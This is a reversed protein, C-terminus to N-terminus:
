RTAEIMKVAEEAAEPPLVDHAVDELSLEIAAYISPPYGALRGLKTVLLVRAQLVFASFHMREPPMASALAERFFHLPDDPNRVLAARVPASPFTELPM